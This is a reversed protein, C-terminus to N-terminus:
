WPTERRTATASSPLRATGSNVPLKATKESLSKVTLLLAIMPPLAPELPLMTMFLLACIQPLAVGPGPLVTVSFEFASTDQPPLVAAAVSRLSRGGTTASRDTLSLARMQATPPSAQVSWPLMVQFALVLRSFSSLLEVM